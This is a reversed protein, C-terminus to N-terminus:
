RDASDGGDALFQGTKLRQEMAESLEEFFAPGSEETIIEAILYWEQARGELFQQKLLFYGQVSEVWMFFFYDDPDKIDPQFTRCRRIDGRLGGVAVFYYSGTDVVFTQIEM